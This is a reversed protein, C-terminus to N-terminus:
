VQLCANNRRVQLHLHCTGGFRRTIIFVCSAVDWFVVDKLSCSTVNRFVTNSAEAMLVQSQVEEPAVLAIMCMLFVLSFVMFYNLVAAMFLNMYCEANVTRVTILCMFRFVCIFDFAHLFDQQRSLM